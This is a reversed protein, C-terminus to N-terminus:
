SNGVMLREYKLQRTTYTRLITYIKAVKQGCPVRNRYRLLRPKCTALSCAHILHMADINLILRICTVPDPRPFYLSMKHGRM